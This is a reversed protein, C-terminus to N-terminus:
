PRIFFLCRKGQEIYNKMIEIAIETKGLGTCEQIIVRRRKDQEFRKIALKQHEHLTIM